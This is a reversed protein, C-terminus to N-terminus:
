PEGGGGIPGGEGLFQRVGHGAQDALVVDVRSRTSPLVADDDGNMRRQVAPQGAAGAVTGGFVLLGSIPCAHSFGSSATTAAVTSSTQSAMAVPGPISEHNM